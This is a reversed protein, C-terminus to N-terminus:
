VGVAYPHFSNRDTHPLGKCAALCTCAYTSVQLYAYLLPASQAGSVLQKTQLHVPLTFAMRLPRWM